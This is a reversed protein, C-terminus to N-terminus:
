TQPIRVFKQYRVEKLGQFNSVELLDGFIAWSGVNGPEHDCWTYRFLCVQTFLSALLNLCLGWLLIVRALAGV